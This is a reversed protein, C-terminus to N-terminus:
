NKWIKDHKKPLKQSLIIEKQYKLKNKITRKKDCCICRIFICKNLYLCNKCIWEIGSKYQNIYKFTLPEYKLEFYLSHNINNMYQLISSINLINNNLTIKILYEIAIDTSDNNKEKYSLYINNEKCIIFGKIFHRLYLKKM